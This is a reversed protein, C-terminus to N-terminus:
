ATLVISERHRRIFALLPASLDGVEGYYRADFADLVDLLSESANMAAAWVADGTLPEAVGLAELAGATIELASPCVIRQLADVIIPAFECSPNAFFQHYGGNNVERELAEIALIVKEESSLASVGLRAAKQLLAGEFAVAISDTRYQGELALLEGTSQGTYSDLWELDTM